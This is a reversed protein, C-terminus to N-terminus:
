GYERVKFTRRNFCELNCSDDNENYEQCPEEVFGFEKGHKGVLFPYGGKCGQNYKSCGLVSGSSLVPKLKNKTM